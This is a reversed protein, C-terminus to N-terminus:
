NSNMERSSSPIKPKLSWTESIRIKGRKLTKAERVKTNSGPGNAKQGAGYYLRENTLADTSVDEIKNTAMQPWQVQTRKSATTTWVNAACLIHVPDTLLLELLMKAAIQGSTDKLKKRGEDHAAGSKNQDLEASAIGNM